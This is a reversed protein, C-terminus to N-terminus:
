RFMSLIMQATEGLGTGSDMSSKQIYRHAEGETMQKQAMLLEKAQRIAQNEEQSRQGPRSKRRQRAVAMSQVTMELTNVLEYVKFPMPMYGTHEMPEEWSGPGALVLMEFCAPLYERLQSCMMDQLRAACVVVGRDSRDAHQLVQAGATCVANIHFGHQVLINKIRKGNELAPFAVIVSVM